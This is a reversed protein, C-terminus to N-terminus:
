HIKKILMTNHILWQKNKERSIADDDPVRASIDPTKWNVGRISAWFELLVQDNIIKSFYLNLPNTQYCKIAPLELYFLTLSYQVPYILIYKLKIFIWCADEWWIFANKTNEM